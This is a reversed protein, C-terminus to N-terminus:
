FTKRLTLAYRRPMGPQGNIYGANSPVQKTLLYYKDGLNTVELSAQWNQDPSRWTLRANWLTYSPLVNLPSNAALSYTTSQYAGDIRPTISGIDGVPIEYQVGISWKWKPTYPSYFGKRVGTEGALETYNFDLYSAAGDILLGEIPRITTEAELGKVHASGVNLPAFCPAGPFPSLEDCRVTTLQINKYDNYFASFNFRVKRDLLDSKFGVEFATMTEPAIPVIQSPFYPRPNVGGGKYGTAVQAYTMFDDTWRYTANLRYDSRSRKYRGVQGDLGFLFGNPPIYGTEGDIPQIDTGDPNKRSFLYTKKDDTLRYGAIIDFRDTLHATLQAFGAISRSPTPDNQIFDLDGGYPLDVRASGNGRSKIYFGGVTYDILSGISGNLRLEQSFQWQRTHNVVLQVPLPSGDTDEAFDNRYWRYGSIAKVSLGDGLDWDITGSVGWGKYHQIPEASFPRWPHTADAPRRDDFTSYTSYRNPPLFRADYPVGDFVIGNPAYIDTVVSAGVESKDQTFDGAVNVEVTESAVWRIALRGAAVQKGGETGLKCGDGTTTAAVGSGPNLCGYDLRDVYGDENHTMGSLRAFLKGPVLEMNASGRFDLRSYSGVTAEVFGGDGSQPKKSYLKIAGGISNKGALTGQPGRLVEVRDVDLLDLLTGTLSAYYVDDVYIGVGPELAFSFDDQGVGRIYAIMSSGFATNNARLTVNPAQASVQQVATQSRAELMASNVATIAIPTDQLRQERFQATVVIDENTSQSTTPEAQATTGTTQAQAGGAAILAFLSTSVVLAAIKM